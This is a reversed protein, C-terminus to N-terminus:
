DDSTIVKEPGPGFVPSVQAVSIEIPGSRGDEAQMDITYEFRPEQLTRERLLLGDQRIQLRYQEAEEGLPVEAIEWSDGGLRTRRIWSIVLGGIQRRARLGAPAFPRLGLGLARGAIVSFAPNALGLRAPGIRYERALGIDDMGLPLEFLAEDVMVIRRGAAIEARALWETGRLGRLLGGLRYVGAGELVADRVQILEWADTAAEIAFLNAGNLVRGRPESALAGDPMAVAFNARHWQGPKGPALPELTVGIRAQRAIRGILEQSEGDRSMYVAMDGAWPEASVALFPRHDRATGNGLPLNLFIAEVPGPPRALPPAVGEGPSRGPLYLGTEVRVAEVELAASQVMREVRWLRKGAREALAVVDGPEVALASPPLRFSARVRGGESEALWRDAVSQATARPLSLALSTEAVSAGLGGPKRSEAASHRYDSEAEVHSFRVIDPEAGRSDRQIDLARGPEAGEVLLDSGLEHDGEGGRMRFRLIGGSEFADFAYVTMLPQLAERVTSARDLLYGHVVGFLGSVDIDAMGGARCIEAVVDALGGSLVRGTIWHGVRHAPGDAWLSQRVPFDPWPRADWTWVFVGEAPIMPGGYLDSVPNTGVGSWYGLKAQLFRRQMEEDRVGRSGFPLASESSRGDLFLNPANAGLDVAPCGTETLWVPKSQPIWPTAFSDRVGGIRNHHANKWWGRIDKARFVWHEGHAGDAIPTRIQAAREEDSAYFWDYNEGGEINARLYPLSYISTAQAADVHGPEYRWDSLATYDDIGVFDVNPDAWFPDLHFIMDDSGDSPRHGSYESWDAAYSIRADPLVVRVEAALARLEDVAPYATRASRIQTLARMESGICIADVGGAAKALTALHLVFRRWGWEQPGSYTVGDGAVAFDSASATGFFAAVEDAAAASMDTSGPVGPARELTIRGRWPFAPQGVGGDPAELDNGPPVDMLLFPYLMVRKGRAALERIARVITDDSPTGGFNPRGEADRSVLPATSTTLGAARWERPASRRGREEIRPEIRCHAARLDTGFWSVVLSVAGCDPLEADLQDLSVAFDARAEANNVNAFRATGNPLLYRVPEPDLGFEGTGPSMAVGRILSALPAGAEASGAEAAALPNSRFVEFGLQPIRNGFEGVPFDEFVVYALDRYAPANEAGEVAEIKPDPVQDAGGRYIRMEFRSPDLLQGDAWIRGIRDIPGEVLGVAFSITYSFEQVRQGGTGKGGQTTTRINELYRTSWIIQGAVRMRGFVVPIPAGETSSQIRLSRARGVAVARSGQGLIRQDIISGAVAGVANGLTAAGIGLVSGGIAGGVASGAASLLVTAM